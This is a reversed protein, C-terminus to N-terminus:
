GKALSFVTVPQDFGKLQRRGAPEFVIGPTSESSRHLREDVLIEGPVAQDTLRSALNVVPGYYDGHYTIVEGFAVGGRPQTGAAEYESTMELAIRCALDGSVAMFMVEDGVHKVIRGGCDSAVDFARSEFAAIKDLLERPSLRNALQTFGVLDVFGIAMRAVIRETVDRQTVRQRWIADRLHQALAPGIVLDGLHLFFGVTRALDQALELPSLAEDGSRDEVDQVYLSVAADAIRSLSAGVVRMLEAGEVELDSATILSRVLEVDRPGFRHEDPEVNVGLERWIRTTRELDVGAERAVDGVTLDAGETLVLDAALGRLRGKAAATEIQDRSAGLTELFEFLNGDADPSVSGSM